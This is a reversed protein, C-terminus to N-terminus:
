DTCKLSHITVSVSSMSGQVWSGQKLTLLGTHGIYIKWIRARDTARTAASTLWKVELAEEEADPYWYLVGEKPRVAGEPSILVEPDM